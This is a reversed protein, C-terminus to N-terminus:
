DRSQYANTQDTQRLIGRDRSVDRLTLSEVPDGSRSLGQQTSRCSLDIGKM